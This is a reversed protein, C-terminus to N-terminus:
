TRDVSRRRRRRRRQRDRIVLPGPRWPPRKPPCGHAFPCPEPPEVEVVRGGGVPLAEPFPIGKGAPGDQDALRLNIDHPLSAMLSANLIFGLIIVFIIAMLLDAGSM